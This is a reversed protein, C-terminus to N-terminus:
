PAVCLCTLLLCSLHFVASSFSNQLKERQPYIILLRQKAIFLHSQSLDILLLTWGSSILSLYVQDHNTQIWFKNFSIM